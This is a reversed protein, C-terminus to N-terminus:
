KRISTLSWCVKVSARQSWKLDRGVFAAWTPNKFVRSSISRANKYTGGKTEMTQESGRGQGRGM